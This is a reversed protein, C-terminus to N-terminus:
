MRQKVQSGRRLRQGTRSNSLLLLTLPSVIESALHLHIGSFAIDFATPVPWFHSIMKACFSDFFSLCGFHCCACVCLAFTCLCLSVIVILGGVCCKHCQLLLIHVFPSSPVLLLVIDSFFHCCFDFSFPM